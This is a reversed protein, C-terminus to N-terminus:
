AEVVFGEERLIDPVRAKHNGQLEITDGEVTGGCALKRKLTSALERLGDDGEFGEVITMPKGYRRTDVHVSLTQQSRRLDDEIGLDSPLGSIDSLDDNVM